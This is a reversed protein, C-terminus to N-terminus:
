VVGYVIWMNLCILSTLLALSPLIFWLWRRSGGGTRSRRERSWALTVLAVSGCAIWWPIAITQRAVREEAEESDHPVWHKMPSARFVDTGDWRPTIGPGWDAAFNFLCLQFSLSVIALGYSGLWISCNGRM